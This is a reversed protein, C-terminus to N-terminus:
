ATKEFLARIRTVTFNEFCTSKSKFCSPYRRILSLHSLDEHEEYIVKELVESHRDWLERYRELSWRNVHGYDIPKLGKQACFANLVEDPWLFQCYPV